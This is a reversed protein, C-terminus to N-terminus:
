VDLLTCPIYSGSNILYTKVSSRGISMFSKPNNGLNVPAALKVMDSSCSFKNISTQQKNYGYKTQTSKIKHIKCVLYYQSILSCLHQCLVLMKTYYTSNSSHPKFESFYFAGFYNQM